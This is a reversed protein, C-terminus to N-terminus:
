GLLFIKKLSRIRFAENEENSVIRGLLSSHKDWPWVKCSLPIYCKPKNPRNTAVFSVLYQGLWPVSFPYTDSYCQGGTRSTQILRNELYFCYNGTTMCSIGFWDFLLDVTCHDKGKLIGQGLEINLFTIHCWLGGKKKDCLPSGEVGLKKIEDGISGRM